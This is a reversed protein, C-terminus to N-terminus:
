IFEYYAAAVQHNYYDELENILEDEPNCDDRVSFFAESPLDEYHDGIRNWEIDYAKILKM